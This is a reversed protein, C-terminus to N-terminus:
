GLLKNRPFSSFDSQRTYSILVLTAVDVPDEAICVLVWCHLQNLAPLNTFFGLALGVSQSDCPGTRQNDRIHCKLINTLVAASLRIIRSITININMQRDSATLIQM